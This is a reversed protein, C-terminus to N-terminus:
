CQNNNSVTQTNDTFDVETDTPNDTATVSVTLDFDGNFDLQHTSKCHQWIQNHFKGFVQILKLIANLVLDM